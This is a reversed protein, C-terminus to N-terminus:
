HRVAEIIIAIVIVWNLIGICGVIYSVIDREFLFFMTTIAIAPMLNWWFTVNKVLKKVICLLTNANNSELKLFAGPRGDAEWEKIDAITLKVMKEAWEEAKHIEEETAPRDPNINM